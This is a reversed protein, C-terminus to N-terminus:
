LARFKGVCDNGWTGAGADLERGGTRKVTDWRPVPQQNTEARNALRALRWCMPLCHQWAAGVAHSTAPSCMGSYIARVRGIANAVDIERPIQHLGEMTLFFNTAPISSITKTRIGDPNHDMLCSKALGCNPSARKAWPLAEHCDHVRRIEFQGVVGAQSQRAAASFSDGKKWM